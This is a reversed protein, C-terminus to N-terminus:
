RLGALKHTQLSLRWRPHREVFDICRQLNAEYSSRLASQPGARLHTDELAASLSPDRPQVFLHGFTGAAAVLLEDDWGDGEALVVKLESGRRRVWDSGLKPSVTLWDVEDLLRREGDTPDLTGNTEVAVRWGASRLEDLLETDLQLAPEGGTLVCWREASAWKVAGMVALLDAVTLKSGGVFDTDCWRACDGAGRTRDEPRGSWLNCGALRVFVSRAGARAGEGQLTPFVERVAYSRPM